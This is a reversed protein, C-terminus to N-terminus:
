VDFVGMIAIGIVILVLVVAAALVILGAIM